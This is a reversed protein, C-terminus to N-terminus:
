YKWSTKGINVDLITAGRIRIEEIRNIRIPSPAYTKRKYNIDQNEVKKKCDFICCVFM